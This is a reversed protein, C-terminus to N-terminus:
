NSVTEEIAGYWAYKKTNFHFSDQIRGTKRATRLCKEYVSYYDIIFDTCNNIEKKSKWDIVVPFCSYMSIGEPHVIKNIMYLADIQMNYYQTKPKGICTREIGENFFKNVKRCCLSTDGKFKLLKEVIVLKISDSLKLVADLDYFDTPTKIITDGLNVSIVLKYGDIQDAYHRCAVKDVSICKVQAFTNESLLLCVCLFGSVICFFKKTMTILEM